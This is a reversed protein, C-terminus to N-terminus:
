AAARTPPPSTRPAAAPRPQRAHHRCTTTGTSPAAIVPRAHDHLRRAVACTTPAIQSATPSTTSAACRADPRAPPAAPVSPGASDPRPPAPGGSSPGAPGRRAGRGTSPTPRRARARRGAAATLHGGIRESAHSEVRGRVRRDGTPSTDRSMPPHISRSPATQTSPCIVWSDRRGPRPHRRGSAARDRRVVDRHAHRAVALDEVRDGVHHALAGPDDHVGLGLPVRRAPLQRQPGGLDLRDADTFQEGPQLLQLLRQGGLPQERGVALLRQGEQRLQDPQDAAAGRAASRSTSSFARCRQGATRKSTRLTAPAPRARPAAPRRLRHLLQVREGSTSTIMTARPPPLTSSRSGNESSCSTRATAAHRVGTTEAIPCSGSVGSSSRTASRRAEVGVSAAFFTTGSTPSSSSRTCAAAPGPAARPGPPKRSRSSRPGRGRAPGARRHLPGCRMTSSRSSWTAASSSRPRRVSPCRSSRASESSVCVSARTTAREGAAVSSRPYATSCFGSPCATREGSSTPPPRPAAPGPPRPRTGTRTSPTLACGGSPQSVHRLRSPRRVSAPRMALSPHALVREAVLLRPVLEDLDDAAQLRAARRQLLRERQPLAALLQRLHAAAPQVAGPGPQVRRQRGSSRSSSRPASATRRVAPPGRPTAGTRSAPRMAAYPRTRPTPSTGVADLAGRIWSLRPGHRRGRWRRLTKTQKLEPAAAMEGAARLVGHRDGGDDLGEGRSSPTTSRRGQLAALREGAVQQTTGTEEAEQSVEGIFKARAGTSQEVAVYQRRPRPLRPALRRTPRRTRAGVDATWQGACARPRRWRTPRGRPAGHAAGRPLRGSPGPGREDDHPIFVYIARSSSGSSPWRCCWTGSRRGAESVQWAGM